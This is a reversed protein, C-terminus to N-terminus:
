LLSNRKKLFTTLVDAVPEETHYVEYSIGMDLFQQEFNRIRNEFATLYAEKVSKTEIVRKEKTELDEFTFAGNYDLTREKKSVVQFVIVENRSTKISKIFDSLENEEEYLDTFFVILEKGAQYNFGQINQAKTKWRGQNKVNVLTNLFRLFHRKGNRPDLTQSQKENLAYISIFDGQKNSLYALASVILRVFDMKTLDDEQHLLSKTSDLIFRVQINSEVESQKIYYRDSRALMKWDLLRIDDGPEYSRYQSFELGSGLQSSDNIGSLYNDVIVRSIFELGEVSQLVEPKLLERYDTQM